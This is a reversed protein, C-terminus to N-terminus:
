LDRLHTISAGPFYHQLIATCSWGARAYGRAGYQCLGVGHGFGRGRVEVDDGRDRISDIWRSPLPRLRSLSSAPAIVAGHPGTIRVKELDGRDDDAFLEFSLSGSRGCGLQTFAGREIKRSWRYLPSDSCAECVVGRFPERPVDRFFAYGDRTRGGCTSAYYSRLLTGDYALVLDTTARVAEILSPAADVGRYVQDREDDFVDFDQSDKRRARATLAFGRAAIAQAALAAPPFSTGMEAAIVGTVYLELPAHLVCRLSGDDAAHVTLRGFHQRSSNANSAAGTTWTAPGLWTIDVNGDDLVFAPESMADSQREERLPIVLLGKAQTRVEIAHVLGLDGIRPCRLDQARIRISNEPAAILVRIEESTAAATPAGRFACRSLVVLVLVFGAFVLVRKGRSKPLSPLQWGLINPSM